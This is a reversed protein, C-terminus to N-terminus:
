RKKVPAHQDTAGFHGKWTQLLRELSCRAPNLPRVIAHVHNPMVVFCGLEYRDGDFHQLDEVVIDSIRRERLLCEGMGQDLWNEIRRMTERALDDLVDTSRPPPHRAEWDAKFQRLEDLKSQPLSDGLRYTVFYTAGTQRWHPLNRTYIELPLDDRFGQFGPPAPLNWMMPGQSSHVCNGSNRPAIM